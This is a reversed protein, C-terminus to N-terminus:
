NRSMQPKPGRKRPIKAFVELTERRILYVGNSLKECPLRGDRCYRRVIEEGVNLFEAADGVTLLDSVTAVSM